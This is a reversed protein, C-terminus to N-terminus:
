ISIIKWLRTRRYRRTGRARAPGTQIKPSSNRRPMIASRWETVYSPWARGLRDNYYDVLHFACAVACRSLRRDSVVKQVFFWKDLLNPGKQTTSM